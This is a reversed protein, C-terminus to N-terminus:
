YNCKKKMEFIKKIQIYDKKSQKQVKKQVIKLWEQKSKTKM